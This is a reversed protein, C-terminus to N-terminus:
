LSRKLKLFMPYHDSLYDTVGDKIIYADLCDPSLTQNVLIYDIRTYNNHNKVKTPASKEYGTHFLKWTDQFNIDFMAQLVYYDIKGNNLIHVAPNNAETVRVLRMKEENQYALSDQPSMNNLDGMLLIKETSPIQGIENKIIEIELRRNNYDNPELHTVYFHHGLIKGYLCGHRMGDVVKKINTIPYKSALGMPFASKRLMVTYPYGRDKFYQRFTEGTFGNLEQFAMVDPKLSDIWQTFSNKLAEDSRFGEYINYSLIKLSSDAVAAHTSMSKNGNVLHQEAAGSSALEINAMDQKCSLSMFACIAVIYRVTRSYIITAVM